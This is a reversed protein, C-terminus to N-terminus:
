GADAGCVDQCSDAQCKSLVPSCESCDKTIRPACTSFCGASDGGGALCGCQCRQFDECSGAYHGTAWGPGFCVAVVAGCSTSMCTACAGAPDGFPSAQAAAPCGGGVGWGGFGGAATATGTTAGGGGLAGGAGTGTTTFTATSGDSATTGAPETTTTSGCAVVVALTSALALLLPNTRARPAM